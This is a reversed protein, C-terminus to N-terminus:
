TRWWRPTIELYKITSDTAMAVPYGSTQITNKGPQFLPYAYAIGGDSMFLSVYSNMNLGDSYCDQMDCDVTIRDRQAANRYEAIAIRTGNMDITANEGDGLTIVPRATFAEPNVIIAGYDDYDTEVGNNRLVVSSAGFTWAVQAYSATQPVEGSFAIRGVDAVVTSISLLNMARTYFAIIAEQGSSEPYNVEVSFTSDAIVEVHELRCMGTSATSAGTEPDLSGYVVPYYRVPTDGVVTFRQPKCVFELSFRGSENYADMDPKIAAVFSAMRFEEPHYSDTLRHYGPDRQLWAKMRSFNEDFNETIGCSYSMTVNLFRGNDVLLDGDRGPISVYEVDREPATFTGEGSVHVGFERLDKGNFILAHAGLNKSKTHNIGM